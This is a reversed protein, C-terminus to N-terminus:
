ATQGTSPTPREAPQDTREVVATTQEQDLAKRAAQSRAM